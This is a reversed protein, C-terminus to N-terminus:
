AATERANAAGALIALARELRLHQGVEVALGYAPGHLAVHVPGVVEIYGITRGDFEVRYVDDGQRIIVPASTRPRSEVAPAREIVVAPPAAPAAISRGASRTPRDSLLTMHSM